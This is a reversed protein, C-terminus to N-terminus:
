GNFRSNGLGRREHGDVFHSIRRLERTRQAPSVLRAYSSEM